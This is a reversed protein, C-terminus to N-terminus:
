RPKGPGFYHQQKNSGLHIIAYFFLNTEKEKQNNIFIASTIESQVKDETYWEVSFIFVIKYLVCNFRHKFAKTFFFFFFFFFFFLSEATYNYTRTFLIM